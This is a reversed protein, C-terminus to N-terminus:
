KRLFNGRGSGESPVSNLARLKVKSLTAGGQNSSDDCGVFRDGYCVIRNSTCNDLVSFMYMYVCVISRHLLQQMSFYCLFRPRAGGIYKPARCSFSYSGSQPLLYGSANLVCTTLVLAYM